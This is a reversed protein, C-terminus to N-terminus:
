PKTFPVREVTFGRGALLKPLASDGVMHLIGTAVFLRQGGRHLEDIRAALSPNRAFVMRDLVQAGAEHRALHRALAELDGSDWVRATAVLERRLTGQELGAVLGEIAAPQEAPPAGAIAARQVAATELAVVKQGSARALHAFVVEIGYDAHLGEWRADLLVLASAIMMPPMTSLPEWPVCARAAQDRLRDRLAPPLVPAEGPKPPASMDAVFAPDLPNAEMAITEAERLARGVVPGPIAWELTGVHLTGYLYGHRGDREFRWLAGRDRAKQVAEQLQAPTPPVAVPPCAPQAGLGGAWTLVALALAATLGRGRIRGSM